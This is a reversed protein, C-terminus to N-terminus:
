DRSGGDHHDGSRTQSDRQQTTTRTDNQHDETTAQQRDQTQTSQTAESTTTTSEEHDGKRDDSQKAAPQTSQLQSTTTSDHQELDSKRETTTTSKNTDDLDMTGAQQKTAEAGDESTASTAEHEGHRPAFHCQAHGNSREMGRYSPCHLRHGRAYGAGESGGYGYGAEQGYGTAHDSVSTGAFAVTATLGAAGVIAAGAALRSVKGNRVGMIQGAEQPPKTTTHLANHLAVTREAAFRGM